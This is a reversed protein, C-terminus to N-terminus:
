RTAQKARARRRRPRFLREVEITDLALFHDKLSEIVRPLAKINVVAIWNPRDAFDRALESVNPFRHILESEEEIHKEIAKLNQRFLRSSVDYYHWAWDLEDAIESPAGAQRIADLDAIDPKLRYLAANTVIMPVLATVNPVYHIEDESSNINRFDINYEFMRDLSIPVFGNALQEIATYVANDQKQGDMSVVIGGTSMPALELVTNARPKRLTPYPACNFVRDDFCWRGSSECPLFFWYRSLDHYKCEILFSLETSRNNHPRTTMLDLEFWSEDNEKNPRSFEHRPLTYWQLSHFTVHTLHELPLGSKLFSEGWKPAAM